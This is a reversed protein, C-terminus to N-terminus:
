LSWGARYNRRLFQDAEALNTFKLNSADWLLKSLTLDERLQVRLAVNGLLVAEALPGAWDFNSGAPDGGKCAAIWEAYHGASRRLTAPIKEAKAARAAPFVSTGLIFGKEGVLLRGNDGMKTGEPLGAPRP